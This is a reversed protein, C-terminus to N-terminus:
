ESHAEHALSTNERVLLYFLSFEGIMEVTGIAILLVILQDRFAFTCVCYLLIVISRMAFAVKRRSTQAAKIRISGKIFKVLVFISLFKAYYGVRAYDDGLLTSFIETGYFFLISSGIITAGSIVVILKILKKSYTNSELESILVAALNNGFLIAPKYLFRSFLFFVGLEELRFVKIMVILPWEEVLFSLLTYSSNYLISKFFKLPNVFTPM